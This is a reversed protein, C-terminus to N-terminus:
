WDRGDTAVDDDMERAISEEAAKAMDSYLKHEISGTPLQEAIRLSKDRQEIDEPFPEGPTGSRVGSITAGYLAGSMERRVKDGLRNASQLATRVFDPEDWIFTRRAKRLVAAVARTMEETGTAVASTLVGVVNKDYGSAVAAFVEAGLDRRMWSDLNDAIWTLVGNLGAAFETTERVRLRNDWSFPMARYGDLSELREAYEVRDQLLRIVWEPDTASRKALAGTISYESIDDLVVLDERIRALDQESFNDWSLGLQKSFCMFIEDALQPDDAFRIAALLRSAEVKHTHALVQAARAVGRRVQPNRDTAVQLLLDLEGAALSRAGRNWSLAQVVSLRRQESGEALLEKASALAQPADIHAYTALVVPLLHELATPATASRIHQLFCQALSPRAQILGAILPGPHGEGAGYAARDAELRDNVAGIVQDDTRSSLGAVVDQILQLRKAEMTEFADGRDRILRGWGDHVTLAVLADIDVPLGQVATEATQRTETSSYNEHWYLADRIGVLIAPDLSGTAGLAGLRQITDIIGPTWGDREERTVERGFTGSPYRLAAKLLSVAAAARRLDSSRIEEFALDIIRQRVPMVSTPVFPFPRFTITHGRLSSDDGETALMPELIEFPSVRLEDAFWTTVTEIVAVNYALPKSVDFEAIERLVRLAHQPHPNTPREDAQALEWLQTLAEGLTEVNMAALKLAPPLEHLVDRYTPSALVSWIRHDESIETTPHDIIWRTMQLTREPQFYAVKALLRVLERRDILDAQQIREHFASWLSDALSPAGERRQHVQWDVRSVNVFLHEASAGVILPEIRALYGTGLPDGDGYAADALIVDGLLDPVIRLSDGRRRLIGANELSRLHKHVIDYPKGVIQSLSERATTENVRFPQIASLADLVASRTPPDDVLPDRILANRFGRMIQERVTDDQELASPDLDGRKILVGGVVTALPSDTTLRALRRVVAEVIDNGLAERALKEADEFTLDGLEIEARNDLLLGARELNEKLWRQGYPRTALVIKADRNWRWINAVIPTVDTFEHADDIIVLLDGEGPLLEYDVATVHTDGPLIRIQFSESPAADALAKLLRTKGVGGHGTVISLSATARYGSRELGKLEDVRGALEWDHNFIMSRATDFHEEPLLWPGPSAIGLFAERHGPFYTNVIRVARDRPLDRIFRSIDEGDWLEWSQHKAAERRAGPTATIRSLFLYHKRADVTVEAIASRVAAPGFEKHRKCQGSALNEGDGTVLIDIGYQKHGRGGFRSVHGSPHMAAMVEVILDEFREEPLEELPLARTLPRVPRKAPAKPPVYNGAEVLTSEDVSLLRALDRLMARRPRSRGREWGSIAQQRIGLETALKAQELGLAERRERLLRGLVEYM